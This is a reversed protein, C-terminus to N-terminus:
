GARDFRYIRAAADFVRGFLRGKGTLEWGVGARRLLGNHMAADLRQDVISDGGFIAMLEERTAGREGARDLAMVIQISPSDHEILSYFSVYTLASPLYFVSFYVLQQPSMTWASAPPSSVFVFMAALYCGGFLKLLASTHARPTRIRWVIIHLTLAALFCGISISLLWM